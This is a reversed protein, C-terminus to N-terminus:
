HLVAHVIYPTVAATPSLYYTQGPATGLAGARSRNNAGPDVLGQSECSVRTAPV